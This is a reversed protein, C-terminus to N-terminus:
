GSFNCSNPFNALCNVFLDNGDVSKQLLNILRDKFEFETEEELDIEVAGSDMVIEDAYAGMEAVFEDLSAM